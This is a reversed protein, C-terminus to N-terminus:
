KVREWSKAAFARKAGDKLHVVDSYEAADPDACIELRDFLRGEQVVTLAWIGGQPKGYRAVLMTGDDFILLCGSEDESADDSTYFNVEGHIDGAFEILDDSRGYIRTGM